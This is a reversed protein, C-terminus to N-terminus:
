SKIGGVEFTKNWVFVTSSNGINKILSEVLSISPDDKTISLHETHTVEM